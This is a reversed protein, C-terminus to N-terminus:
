TISLSRRPTEIGDHFRTARADSPLFSIFNAEGGHSSFGHLAPISITRSIATFTTALSWFYLHAGVPFLGGALRKRPEGVLGQVVTASDFHRMVTLAANSKRRRRGLDYRAPAAMPLPSPACVRRESRRFGGNGRLTLMGPRRMAMSNSSGGGTPVHELARRSM